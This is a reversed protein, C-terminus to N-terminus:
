VHARGIQIREGFGYIDDNSLKSEFNIYTQSFIFNKETTFSYFINKEKNKTEQFLNFYFNDEKAGYEIEFKIKNNNKEISKDFYDKNLIENPVKWRNKDNNEIKLHVYNLHELKLSIKLHKNIRINNQDILQHTKLKGFLEPVNVKQNISVNVKKFANKDKLYKEVDVEEIKIPKDTRIIVASGMSMETDQYVDSVPSTIKYITSNNLEAQRIPQHYRDAITSLHAYVLPEPCFRGKSHKRNIVAYPVLEKLGPEDQHYLTKNGIPIKRYNQKLVTYIALGNYTIGDYAVNINMGGHHNVGFVRIFETFLKKYETWNRDNNAEKMEEMLQQLKNFEAQDKIYMTQYDSGKKQLINKNTLDFQKKSKATMNQLEEKSMRFSKIFTNMIGLRTKYYEIHNKCFKTMDSQYQKILPIVKDEESIGNFKSKIEELAQEFKALEKDTEEMLSIINKFNVKNMNTQEYKNSKLRDYEEANKAAKITDELDDNIRDIDFKLTASSNNNDYQGKFNERSKPLTKFSHLNNFNDFEQPTDLIEKYYTVVDYSNKINRAESIKMLREFDDQQKQPIYGKFKKNKPNQETPKSDVSSSKPPEETKTQADDKTSGSDNSSSSDNNYSYSVENDDDISSDDTDKGFLKLFFNKIFRIAKKIWLRIKKILEIFKDWVNKIIEKIDFAEDLIIDDQSAFEIETVMTDFNFIRAERLKDLEYEKRDQETEWQELIKEPNM